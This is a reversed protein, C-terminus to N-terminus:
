GATPAPPPSSLMATLHCPGAGGCGEASRRLAQPGCRQTERGRVEPALRTGPQHVWRPQAGGAGGPSRGAHHGQDAPAPAPPTEPALTPAAADEPDNQGLATAVAQLSDALSRMGEVVDLLLKMRSM